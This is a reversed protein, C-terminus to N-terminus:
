VPKRLTVVAGPVDVGRQQRLVGPEWRVLELGSSIAAEQIYQKDHGFRGSALLRMGNGQKLSLPISEITFVLIGGGVLTRSCEQLLEKLDGVYIFVDSAVIADVCGDSIEGKLYDVANAQAVENYVNQNGGHDQITRLKALDVMRSSLDVGYIRCDKKSQHESFMNRLSEGLLGTGCGLDVVFIEKSDPIDSLCSNTTHSPHQKDTKEDNQTFWVQQLANSVMQHGVYQLKNVLEDEFRSAYGDFLAEVYTPDLSRTTDTTSTVELGDTNTISNNEDILSALQVTAHGDHPRAELAKHFYDRALQINQDFMGENTQLSMNQSREKFVIGINTYIEVLSDRDDETISQTEEQMTQAVKVGDQIYADVTEPSSTPDARCAAMALTLHRLYRRRLADRLVAHQQQVQEDTIELLLKSNQELADRSKTAAIEYSQRMDIPQGLVRHAAGNLEDLVPEDACCQSNRLSASMSLVWHAGFESGKPHERLALSAGAEFAAAIDTDLSADMQEGNWVNLIAREYYLLATEVNQNNTMISAYIDGIRRFAQSRISRPLTASTGDPHTSSACAEYLELIEAILINNQPHNNERLRSELLRALAYKVKRLDPDTVLKSRCREIAMTVPDDAVAPSVSAEVGTTQQASYHGDAAVAYCGSITNNFPIPSLIQIAIAAMLFYVTVTSQQLPLIMRSPRKRGRSAAM